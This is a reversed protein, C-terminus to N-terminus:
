LSSRVAAPLDPVRIGFQDDTQLAPDLLDFTAGTNPVQIRRVISTGELVVDLVSGMVLSLQAMGSVDTVVTRSRGAIFFGDQIVPSYVNVVTVKAGVLPTGDVGALKVTGTIIHSEDVAFTSAGAVWDSWTSANGSVKNIFRTRYYSTVLGGQDSYGYVAVGRLLQVHEDEGTDIQGTTLGLAANSTGNTIQLASVTGKKVTTMKITNLVDEVVLGPIAATIAKIVSQISVPDPDTFPVTIETGQNIALKLSTGYLGVYPQEVTGTLTAAVASPATISVADSFSPPGVNSRQVEIHDFLRLTGPVDAVYVQIRIIAM